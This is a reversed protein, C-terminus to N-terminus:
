APNLVRTAVGGDPIKRGGRLKGTGKDGWAETWSNDIDVVVEGDLVDVDVGCVSHGWWNYDLVVPVNQLLCSVVQNWTMNQDYVARSVDVFDETIRYKAAEAWNEATDYKRSM